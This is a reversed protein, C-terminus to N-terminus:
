GYVFHHPIATFSWSMTYPDGLPAFVVQNINADYLASASELEVTVTYREGAVFPIQPFITLSYGGGTDSARALQYFRCAPVTQGDSDTM